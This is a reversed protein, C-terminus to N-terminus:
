SHRKAHLKPHRALVLAPIQLKALSLSGGGGREEGREAVRTGLDQEVAIRSDVVVKYRDPNYVATRQPRAISM